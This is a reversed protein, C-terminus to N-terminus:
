YPSRFIKKIVQLSSITQVICVYVLYYYYFPNNSLLTFIHVQSMQSLVHDLLPSKHARCHISSGYIASLKRLKRRVSM